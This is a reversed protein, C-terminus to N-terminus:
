GEETVVQYSEPWHEREIGESFMSFNRNELTKLPYPSLVNAQFVSFFLPIPFWYLLLLCKRLFEMPLDKQFFCSWKKHQTAYFETLTVTFCQNCVMNCASSIYLIKVQLLVLISFLNILWFLLFLSLALSISLKVNELMTRHRITSANIFCKFM